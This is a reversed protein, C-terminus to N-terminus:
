SHFPIWWEAHIPALFSDLYSPPATFGDLSWSYLLLFHFGRSCSSRTSHASLTFAFHNHLFFFSSLVAKYYLICFIRFNPVCIDTMVMLYFCHKAYSTILWMPSPCFLVRCIEAINRALHQTNQISFHILYFAM